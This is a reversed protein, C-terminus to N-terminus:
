RIAFTKGRDTLRYGGRHKNEIDAYRVWGQSRLRTIRTSVEGAPMDLSAAIDTIYFPESMGQLAVILEKWTM